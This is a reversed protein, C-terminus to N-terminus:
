NSVQVVSENEADIIFKINDMALKQMMEGNQVLKVVKVTDPYRNPTAALDQSFSVVIKKEFNATGNPDMPMTIKKPSPPSAVRYANFEQFETNLRDCSLQTDLRRPNDLPPPSPVRPPLPIRISTDILSGNKGNPSSNSKAVVPHRMVPKAYAIQTYKKEVEPISSISSSQSITSPTNPREPKNMDELILKKLQDSIQHDEHLAVGEAKFPVTIVERKEQTILRKLTNSIQIADPSRLHKERFEHPNTILAQPSKIQPSIPTQPPPPPPLLDIPKEDAAILKKLDSSMKGEGGLLNKKPVLKENRITMKKPTTSTSSTSFNRKGHSIMLKEGSLTGDRGLTGNRSQPPTKTATTIQPSTASPSVPSQARNMQNMESEKREREQLVRIATSLPIHM